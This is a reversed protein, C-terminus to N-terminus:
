EFVVTLKRQRAENTFYIRLLPDNASYNFDKVFSQGLRVSKPPKETKMLIVAPTNTVGEVYASFNNQDQKLVNVRCASALVCPTARNIRDLDLLYYRSGPSITIQDQVALTSDFLNIFHGDLVRPQGGISDDLGAAIVYPGRRL